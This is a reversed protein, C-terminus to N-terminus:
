PRAAGAASAAQGGDAAAAQTSQELLRLARDSGDNVRREILGPKRKALAGLDHPYRLGFPSLLAITDNIYVREDMSRLSPHADLMQELMTTGSRPFGIVFVPSHLM